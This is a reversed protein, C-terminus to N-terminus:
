SMSGRPLRAIVRQVGRGDVLDRGRRSMHGRRARDERLRMLAKGIEEVSLERGNGVHWTTGAKEFDRVLEGHTDFQSIMLSPTGTVATEYKTLGEGTVAIDAWLMHRALDRPQHLVEHPGGWEAMSAGIEAAVGPAGAAGVVFRVATTAPDLMAVARAVKASLHYPDSGGITVLINRATPRLRRPVAAAAVFEPRFVFYEAGWLVTQFGRAVGGRTGARYYPVVVMDSAYSVGTGNDFTVVYARTGRTLTEHYATLEAPRTLRQTTCLDTVLLRCGLRAAWTATVRADDLFGASPIVECRHGRPGIAEAALSGAEEGVLFTVPIGAERLGDALGLSRM